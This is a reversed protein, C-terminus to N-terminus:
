NIISEYLDKWRWAHKSFDWNEIVWQRANEGIKKREKKNEILYCIKEFWENENEEATFGTEGDIVSKYLFRSYVGPIRNLGYEGLKCESKCRSFMNEVVPAVALDLRLAPVKSPFVSMPVGLSFEYQEPPINEFLNEGYNYTVWDNPSTTGGFGTCVFKANKYKKLVEEMIPALFLLDEKHSNGGIWGIRITDSTNPLYPKDWFDLDVYNPLVHINQNFWQYHKKLTENTCTIADVKKLCYYTLYTRWWNMDKHAYHMKSVKEMLDDLEYIVKAGYHKCAKIFKPSYTMEVVVLDAWKLLEPKIGGTLGAKLGRVKVDWGRTAM